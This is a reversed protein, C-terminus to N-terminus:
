WTLSSEGALNLLDQAQPVHAGPGVAGILVKWGTQTVTSVFTTTTDADTTIGTTILSYPAAKAHSTPAAITITLITDRQYKARIEISCLGTFQDLTRGIQVASISPLAAQVTRIVVSTPAAGVPVIPCAGPASTQRLYDQLPGTQRALAAVTLFATHKASQTKPQSRDHTAPATRGSVFSAVAIGGVLAGAVWGALHARGPHRRVPGLARTYWGPEPRGVDLVDEADDRTPATAQERGDEVDHGFGQLDGGEAM